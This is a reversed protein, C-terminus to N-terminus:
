TGNSSTGNNVDGKKTFPNFGSMNSLKMEKDVISRIFKPVSIKRKKAENDLWDKMTAPMRVLISSEM